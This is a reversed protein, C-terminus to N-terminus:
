NAGYRNRLNKLIQWGDLLEAGNELSKEAEELKEIIYEDTIIQPMLEFPICKNDAVKAFFVNIAQETTLGVEKFIKDAKTKLKPNIQNIDLQKANNGNM